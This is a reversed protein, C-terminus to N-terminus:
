RGAKPSLIELFKHNPPSLLTKFASFLQFSFKAFPSSPTFLPDETGCMGTDWKLPLARGPRMWWQKRCMLTPTTSLNPKSPLRGSCLHSGHKFIRTFFDGMIMTIDSSELRLIRDNFCFFLFTLKISCVCVFIFDQEHYPWHIPLYQILPMGPFLNFKGCIELM